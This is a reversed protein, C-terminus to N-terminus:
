LVRGKIRKSWYMAGYYSGIVLFAAICQAGITEANPFLSFWLGMWDPIPIPLATTGIWHALQLEQISEGVMVLLVAGLLIGTGILMKLYPMRKQLVFTIWGVILTLLLGILTGQLIVANGVKLRISQLLVVVEFGERYVSSFGLLALGLFIDINM